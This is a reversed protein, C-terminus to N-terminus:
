PLPVVKVFFTVIADGTSRLRCRYTGVEGEDVENLFLNGDATLVKKDDSGGVSIEEDGDTWYTNRSTFSRFRDKCKLLKTGGKIICSLAFREAPRCVDNIEKTSSHVM